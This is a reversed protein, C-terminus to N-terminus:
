NSMNGLFKFTVDALIRDALMKEMIQRPVRSKNRSVPANEIPELDILIHFASGEKVPHNDWRATWICNNDTNLEGDKKRFMQRLVGDM